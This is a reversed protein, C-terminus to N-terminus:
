SRFTELDDKFCCKSTESKCNFYDFALFVSTKGEGLTKYKGNVM